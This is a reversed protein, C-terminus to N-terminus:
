PLPGSVVEVPFTSNCKTQKLGRPAARRRAREQSNGILGEPLFVVAALLAHPIQGVVGGPLSVGRVRAM